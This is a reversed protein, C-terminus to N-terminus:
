KTMETSKSAWRNMQQISRPAARGPHEDMEGGDKERATSIFMRKTITYHVTTAPM